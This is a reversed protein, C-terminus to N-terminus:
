GSIGPSVLNADISVDRLGAGACRRAIEVPDADPSVTAIGTAEGGAIGQLTIAASGPGRVESFRFAIEHGDGLRLTGPGASSGGGCSLVGAAAAAYRAPTGDLSHRRGREDVLTGSCTGALRAAAHGPQPTATLAPTHRVTGSLSCSGSFTEARQAGGGRDASAAATPLLLGSLALLLILPHRRM